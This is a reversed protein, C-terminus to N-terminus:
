RSFLDSQGLKLWTKLSIRKIVWKLHTLQRYELRKQGSRIMNESGDLYSTDDEVLVAEKQSVFDLIYPFDRFNETFQFNQTSITDFIASKLDSRPLIPPIQQDWKTKFDMIEAELLPDLKFEGMYELKLWYMIQTLKAYQEENYTGTPILRSTMETLFSKSYHDFVAFAWFVDIIANRDGTITEEEVAETSDFNDEEDIAEDPGATTPSINFKDLLIAECRSLLAQWAQWHHERSIMSPIFRGAYNLEALGKLADSLSSVTWPYTSSDIMEVISNVAQDLYVVQFIKHKAAVRIYNVMIPIKEDARLTMSYPGKAMVFRLFFRNAALRFVVKSQPTNPTIHSALEIIQAPKLEVTKLRMDEAPDLLKLVWSMMQEDFSSSSKDTLNHFAEMIDVVHIVDLKGGNLREIITNQLVALVEANFIRSSVKESTMILQQVQPRLFLARTLM